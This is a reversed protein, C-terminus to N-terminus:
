GGNCNDCTFQGKDYDTCKEHWWSKCLICEIWDETPPDRYKEKCQPCFYDKSAQKQARKFCNHVTSDGTKCKTAKKKLSPRGSAMTKIKPKRSMKANAEIQKQQLKCKYPSSTIIESKCANNRRKQTHKAKPLPSIDTIPVHLVSTAALSQPSIQVEIGDEIPATVLQHPINEKPSVSKQPNSPATHVEDCCSVQNNLISQSDQNDALPSIISVGPQPEFMDTVTAAAFDAETFLENDFPHIGSVKFGSVANGVTAVKKFAKDFISVVQYQNIARGPHQGMWRECEVAYQGKLPSFFARDLPQMKHSSHPPLTLVVIGYDRCFITAELSIHSSHNDIILLVPNNRSAGVNDKFHQLWNLYLNANIFGSDSVMGICGAPGDDLLEGRLRKRPFIFAPPVYHGTASVCCVATITQGREGSVIKNVNKKGKLSIVRPTKKPVTSIGTEDMNYIRGALFMHKEMCEQLNAYFRRVQVANFGIARAISTPTTQRLALVPHRKLFGYVWDKGATKTINDFRHEIKNIEAFEYVIKRLTQMTLGYFM